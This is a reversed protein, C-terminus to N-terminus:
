SLQFNSNVVRSLKDLISNLYDPTYFNSRFLNANQLYFNSSLVQLQKEVDRDNVKAISFKNLKEGDFFCQYYRDEFSNNLLLDILLFGAKGKERLQIEVDNFYDQLRSMDTSLLLFNYTSSNPISKLIYSTNEM